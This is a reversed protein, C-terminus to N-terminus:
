DRRFRQLRSKLEAALDFPMPPQGAPPKAANPSTASAIPEASRVPERPQERVYRPAASLFDFLGEIPPPPPPPWGPDEISPVATSTHSSLAPSSAAARPSPWAASSPPAWAALHPTSLTDPIPSSLAARNPSSHMEGPTARDSGSLEIAAQPPSTRPANAKVNRQVPAGAAYLTELHQVFRSSPLERPLIRSPPPSAVQHAYAREADTRWADTPHHARARGTAASTATQTPVFSAAVNARSETCVFRAHLRTRAAQILVAPSPRAPVPPPPRKPMGPGGAVPTADIERHNARSRDAWTPFPELHPPRGRTAPARATSAVANSVPEARRRIHSDDSKPRAAPLTPRLPTPLPRTPLLLQPPLPLPLPPRLPLRLPRLPPPRLPLALAPPLLPRLLRVPWRNPPRTGAHTPEDQSRVRYFAPLKPLALKPLAFKPVPPMTLRTVIVLPWGRPREDIPDRAAPTRGHPPTRVCDRCIFFTM